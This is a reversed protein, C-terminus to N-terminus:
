EGLIPAPQAVVVAAVMIRQHVVSPLHDALVAVAVVALIVLVVLLVQAGVVAQVQTTIPPPIYAAPQAALLEKQDTYRLAVPLPPLLLVQAEAPHAVVWTAIAM